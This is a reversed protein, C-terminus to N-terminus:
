DVYPYYIINEKLIYVEFKLQPDIKHVFKLSTQCIFM